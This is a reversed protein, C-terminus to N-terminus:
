MPFFVFTKSPVIDELRTIQTHGSATTLRRAGYNLVDAKPTLTDLLANLTPYNRMNFDRIKVPQMFRDNEDVYFCITNKSDGM